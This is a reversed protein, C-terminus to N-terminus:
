AKWSYEGSSGEASVTGVKPGEEAKEKGDEKEEEANEYQHASEEKTDFSVSKPMVLHHSVNGSKFDAASDLERGEPPEAEGLDEQEQPPAADEAPDSLRRSRRRVMVRGAHPGVLVRYNYHSHHVRCHVPDRFLSQFQAMPPGHGAVVGAGEHGNEDEEQTEEEEEVEEETEDGEESQYEDEEQDEIEPIPGREETASMAPRVRWVRIPSCHLDRPLHRGGPQTDCDFFDLVVDPVDSSSLNSILASNGAPNRTTARWPGPGSSCCSCLPGGCTPVGSSRGDSFGPSRQPGPPLSVLHPPPSRSLWSSRPASRTSRGLAVQLTLVDLGLPTPLTPTSWRGQALSRCSSCCGLLKVGRLLRVVCGAAAWLAPDSARGAAAPRAGLGACLQSRGGRRCALKALGAPAPVWQVLHATGGGVAAQAGGLGRSRRADATM